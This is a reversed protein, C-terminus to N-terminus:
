NNGIVIKEHVYTAREIDSEILESIETADLFYLEGMTVIGHCKLLRYEKLTLADFHDISTGRREIEPNWVIGPISGRYELLESKLKKGEECVIKKYQPCNEKIWKTQDAENNESM